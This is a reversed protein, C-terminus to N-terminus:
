AHNECEISRHIYCANIIVKEFAKSLGELELSRLAGLQPLAKCLAAFLEAQAVGTHPHALPHTSPLSLSCSDRRFPVIIATWFCIPPNGQGKEQGAHM